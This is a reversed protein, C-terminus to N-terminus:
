RPTTSHPRCWSNRRHSDKRTTSSNSPPASWSRTAPMAPNPGSSIRQTRDALRRARVAIPPRGRNGAQGLRGCGSRLASIQTIRQKELRASWTSCGTGCGPQKKSSSRNRRGSWKRGAPQGTIGPGTRRSVPPGAERDSSLRGAISQRHLAGHMTQDRIRHLRTRGQRQHRNRVHGASVGKPHGEANRAVSRGAHLTRLLARRREARAPRDLASSFGRQHALAPLSIAQRGPPRYQIAPPAAQDPQKRPDASGSRLPHRHNRSRRDRQRAPHNQPYPRQGKPFLLPGPGGSRRGKRRVSDGEEREQLSLLRTTGAFAGTKVASLETTM